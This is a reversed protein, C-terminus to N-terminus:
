SDTLAAAIATDISPYSFRFGSDQLAKPLVRQGALVGVSAFEGLVLRLAIPPAPLLAPRHLARGLARAFDKQRVPEPATLNVPGSVDATLLFIIAAVEDDLEIWSQFQRGSGLPGGLGFKYLPLQQALAGGASSLVIGTRLLAVRIGAQAAPEAAQEWAIAVEALFDSGAPSQEDLAADGTNGYFGIASGSLLVKPLPDLGALTKALLATADVRAQKVQRKYDETWRHDGIGPGALNVAADVGALDAPDLRGSSPDWQVDGPESPPRRVLRVVEHGGARLATTLRTGILGSAGTIAIKV